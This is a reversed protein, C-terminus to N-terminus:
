RLGTPESGRSRAWVAYAAEVETRTAGIQLWEEASLDLGRAVENLANNIALTAPAEDGRDDVAPWRMLVEALEGRNVGLRTEFEGDLQRTTSVFALVQRIVAQVDSSLSEVAM